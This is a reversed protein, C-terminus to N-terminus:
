SADDELFRNKKYLSTVTKPRSRDVKSDLIRPLMNGEPNKELRELLEEKSDELEEDDEQIELSSELDQQAPNQYDPEALDKYFGHKVRSEFEQKLPKASTKRFRPQNLNAVASKIDRKNKNSFSNEEIYFVKTGTLPRARSGVTGPRTSKSETTKKGTLNRRLQITEFGNLKPGEYQDLKRFARDEYRSGTYSQGIKRTVESEYRQRANAWDRMFHIWEQTERHDALEKNRKSRWYQDMTQEELTRSRVGYGFNSVLAQDQADYM